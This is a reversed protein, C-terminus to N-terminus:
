NRYLAPVINIYRRHSSLTDMGYIYTLTNLIHQCTSKPPVLKNLINLLVTNRFQPMEVSNSLHNIKNFYLIKAPIDYFCFWTHAINIVPQQIQRSSGAYMLIDIHPKIQCVSSCYGTCMHVNKELIFHWLLYINNFLLIYLFSM